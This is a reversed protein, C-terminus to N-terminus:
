SVVTCLPCKILFIYNCFRYFCLYLDNYIIDTNKGSTLAEHYSFFVSIIYPTYFHMSVYQFFFIMRLHKVNCTM